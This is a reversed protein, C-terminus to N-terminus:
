GACAGPATLANEIKRGYNRKPALLWLAGADRGLLTWAMVGHMASADGPAVSVSVLALAGAICALRPSHRRAGAEHLATQPPPKAKRNGSLQVDRCDEADIEGSAHM